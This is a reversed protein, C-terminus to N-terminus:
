VDYNTYIKIRIKWEKELQVNMFISILAHHIMKLSAPPNENCQNYIPTEVHDHLMHQIHLCQCDGCFSFIGQNQANAKLTHVRPITTHPWQSFHPNM